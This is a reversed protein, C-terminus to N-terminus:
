GVLGLGKAFDYLKQRDMNTSYVNLLYNELSNGAKRELTRKQDTNKSKIVVKGKLTKKQKSIWDSSGILEITARAGEPIVPAEQGEIWTFSVIPTCVHETSIFSESEISGDQSHSVVWLGKVENADSNTLWRATGPLIVKGFRSRKHIHGGIILSFNVDEQKVGDPCYFGNEYQAGDWDEHCVLTNAQSSFSNAIEVFKSKDHIYPVYVINDEVLPTDVISLLPINLMKFAGMSHIKSRADGTYDHNGILFITRINVSFISIWKKWFSVVESRLIAHNHMQDGLFVLKNINEKIATEKIFSMLRDSEDLNSVMVHPDGVYLTKITLNNM